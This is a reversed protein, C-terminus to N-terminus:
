ADRRRGDRPPTEAGARRAMLRDLGVLAAGGILFGAAMLAANVATRTWGLEAVDMFPYAYRGEFAGRTLAYAFYATPLIAWLLPDRRRLGGKPVCVLWFLAVMVPTVRHLLTDALQAGGSLEVLGRLLLGYVIGVLLIAVTVGGLLAPSRARPLGAALATLVVAVLLNAIVTFYRLMFWLAAGASGVLETSAHFQIALGVWATVAVVAAAVRPIRGTTADARAADAAM